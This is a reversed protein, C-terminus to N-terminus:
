ERPAWLGFGYELYQWNPLSQVNPNVVFDIGKDLLNFYNGYFYQDYVYVPGSQKVIDMSDSAMKSLRLDKATGSFFLTANFIILVSFIIGLIKFVKKNSTLICYLAMLVIFYICPAYRAWWSEKIILTLGVFMLFNVLLLWFNQDKKMKILKVILIILSIVFIASFFIGFGSVRADIDSLHEFEESSFMFPFKLQPTLGSIHTFNNLYSFLSLFLNKFHNAEVFPSNWSMIDVAGAGTLPYTPTGHRLLNTMYSSSGAFCVAVFAILAFCACTKLCPKFFAKKNSKYNRVCDLIFYIICFVGAFLLGTFKINACIIVMSAVLSMSIKRDFEDKQYWMTLAILLMFLCLHLFGDLYFTNFQSIAIPNLSAALAMILCTYNKNGKKKFFYFTLLFAMIIALMTYMKGTEINGTISYISTGLIWTFKCYAEVWLNTIGSTGPIVDLVPLEYVPNWNNNLLGVAVKHYSNGDYSQDYFFASVVVLLMFLLIGFAIEFFIKYSIKEGYFLVLFLTGFMFSLPLLIWSITLGVIFFLSALLLNSVLTYLFFQFVHLFLMSISNKTQCSNKGFTSGIQFKILDLM